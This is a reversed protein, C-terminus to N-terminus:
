EHNEMYELEAIARDIKDNVSTSCADDPIDWLLEKPTLRWMGNKRLWAEAKGAGPLDILQQPTM